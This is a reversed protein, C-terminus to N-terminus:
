YDKMNVRENKIKKVKLETVIKARLKILELM